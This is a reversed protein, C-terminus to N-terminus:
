DGAIYNSKFKQKMENVHQLMLEIKEATERAGKKGVFFFHNGHVTESLYQPVQNLIIKTISYTNLNKHMDIKSIYQAYLMESRIFNWASPDILTLRPISPSDDSILSIWPTSEFRYVGSDDFSKQANFEFKNTVM